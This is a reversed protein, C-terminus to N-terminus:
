GCRKSRNVPAPALFLLHDKSVFPVLSSLMDDTDLLVVHGTAPDFVKGVRGEKDLRVLYMDEEENEQKPLSTKLLAKKPNSVSVWLGSGDMMKEIAMPSGSGDESMSVYQYWQQRAPKRPNSAMLRYIGVEGSSQDYTIKYHQKNYDFAYLYDDQAQGREMEAKLTEGGFLKIFEHSKSVASPMEVQVPAGRKGKAKFNLSYLNLTAEKSGVIGTKPNYTWSAGSFAPDVRKMYENMFENVFVPDASFKQRLPDLFKREYSDKLIRNFQPIGVIDETLSFIILSQVIDLDMLDRCDEFRSFLLCMANMSDSKGEDRLWKRIWEHGKQTTKGIKVNTEFAPFLTNDMEHNLIHGVLLIFPYAEQNGDETDLIKKLKSAFEDFFQPNDKIDKKLVGHRTLALLIARQVEPNDWQHKEQLFTTLTEIACFIGSDDNVIQMTNLLYNDAQSVLGKPEKQLAKRLATPETLATHGGVTSTLYLPSALAKQDANAIYGELGIVKGVSGESNKEDPVLGFRDEFEKESLGLGNPLYAIASGSKGSSDVINFCIYGSVFVASAIDLRRMSKIKKQVEALKNVKIFGKIEKKGALGTEKAKREEGLFIKFAKIGGRMSYPIFPILSYDPKVLSTMMMQARRLDILGSDFEEKNKLKTDRSANWEIQRKQSKLSDLDDPAPGGYFFDRSAQNKVAVDLRLVTKSEQSLYNIIQSVEERQEPLWGFRLHPHREILFMMEEKDLTYKEQFGDLYSGWKADKQRLLEVIYIQAKMMQVLQNPEPYTMNLRLASEWIDKTLNTIQESLFDPNPHGHLDGQSIVPLKGLASEAARKAALYEGREIMKDIQEHVEKLKDAVEKPRNPDIGFADIRATRKVKEGKRSAGPKVIRGVDFQASFVQKSKARASSLSRERGVPMKKSLAEYEEKIREIKDYFETFIELEAVEGSHKLTRKLEREFKEVRMILSRLRRAKMEGSLHPSAELVLEAEESIMSLLYEAKEQISAEPFFSFLDRQMMLYLSTPNKEIEDPRLEKQKGEMLLITEHLVKHPDQKKRREFEGTKESRERLIIDLRRKEKSSIEFPREEHKVAPQLLGNLIEKLKNIPRGKISYIEALNETKQSGWQHFQIDFGESTKQISLMIPQYKEEVRIGLPIMCVNQNDKANDWNEAIDGIIETITKQLEVDNNLAHELARGWKLGKQLQVSFDTEGAVLGDSYRKQFAELHGFFKEPTDIHIDDYFQSLSEEAVRRDESLWQRLAIFPCIGFAWVLNIGPVFTPWKKLLKGWLKMFARKEVREARQVKIERMSVVRVVSSSSGEDVNVDKWDIESLKEAVVQNLISQACKNIVELSLDKDSHIIIKRDIDDSALRVLYDHNSNSVSM